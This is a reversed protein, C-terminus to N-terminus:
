GKSAHGLVREPNTLQLLPCVGVHAVLAQNSQYYPASADLGVKTWHSMM